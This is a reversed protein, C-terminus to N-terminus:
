HIKERPALQVWNYMFCYIRLLAIERRSLIQRAEGTESEASEREEVVCVFLMQRPRDKERDHWKNRAREEMLAGRLRKDRRQDWVM